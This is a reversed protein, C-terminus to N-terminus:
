LHWFINVHKPVEEVRVTKKLSLLYSDRLLVKGKVDRIYVFFPYVIFFITASVAAIAAYPVAYHIQNFDPSPTSMILVAFSHAIKPSAPM